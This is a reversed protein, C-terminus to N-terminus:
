KHKGLNDFYDNIYIESGSVESYVYSSIVLIISVVVGLFITRPSRIASITNIFLFGIFFLICWMKYGFSYDYGFYEIHQDLNFSQLIYNGPWYMTKFLLAPAFFFLLAVCGALGTKEKTKTGKDFLEFLGFLTVGFIIVALLPRIISWLSIRDICLYWVFMMSTIVAITKNIKFVQNLNKLDISVLNLAPRLLWNFLKTHYKKTLVPILLISVLTILDLQRGHLDFIFWNPLVFDWFDRTWDTWLIVIKGLWPILPFSGAVCSLITIVLFLPIRIVTGLIKKWEM